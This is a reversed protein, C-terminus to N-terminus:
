GDSQGRAGRGPLVAVALAAREAEVERDALGEGATVFAADGVVEFASDGVRIAAWM